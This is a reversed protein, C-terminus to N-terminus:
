ATLEAVRIYPTSYPVRWGDFEAFLQGLSRQEVAVPEKGLSDVCTSLLFLPGRALEHRLYGELANRSALNKLDWESDVHLYEWGCGCGAHSALYYVHPMKLAAAVADYDEDPGGLRSVGLFESQVETLRRSAGAYLQSCNM